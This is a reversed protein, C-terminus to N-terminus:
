CLHKKKILHNVNGLFTKGVGDSEKYKEPSLRLEENAVTCLCFFIQYCISNANKTDSCVSQIYAQDGKLLKRPSIRYVLEMISAWTPLAAQKQTPTKNSPRIM